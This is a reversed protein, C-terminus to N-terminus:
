QRDVDTDRLALFINGGQRWPDSQEFSMQARLPWVVGINRLTLFLNGSVRRRIESSRFFWGSRQL